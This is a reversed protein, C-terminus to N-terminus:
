IILTDTDVLVSGGAKFCIGEVCWVQGIQVGKLMGALTHQLPPPSCLKLFIVRFLFQLDEQRGLEKSPCFM